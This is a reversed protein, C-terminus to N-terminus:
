QVGRLKTRGITNFYPRADVHGDDLDVLRPPAHPQPQRPLPPSVRSKTAIYSAAIGDADDPVECSQNFARAPNGRLDRTSPAPRSRRTWGAGLARRPHKQIPRHLKVEYALQYHCSPRPAGTQDNSGTRETQAKSRHKSLHEYVYSADIRDRMLRRSGCALLQASVKQGLNSSQVRGRALYPPNLSDKFRIFSRRRSSGVGRFRRSSSHKM